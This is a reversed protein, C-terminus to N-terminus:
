KHENHHGTLFPSDVRPPWDFDGGPYPDAQTSHALVIEPVVPEVLQLYEKEWRDLEEFLDMSQAYAPWASWDVASPLDMAGGPGARFRLRAYTRGTRGLIGMVAWDCEGFVRDFTAEDVASPTVSAGPHTHLWIRAFRVPPVGADAMEDFMDAVATDDFAVTVATTRQKVVLLDEVYLLDAADTLGFAGVETPGAHCLFQFKLWARPAFTLRVPDPSHTM